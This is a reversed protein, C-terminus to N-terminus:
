PKKEDKEVVRRQSEVWTTVPLPLGDADHLVVLTRDNVRFESSPIVFKGDRLGYNIVLVFKGNDAWRQPDIWVFEIRGWGGQSFEQTYHYSHPEPPPCARYFWDLRHPPGASM